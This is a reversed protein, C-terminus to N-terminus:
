FIKDVYNELYPQIIQYKEQLFDYANEIEQTNMLAASFKFKAYDWFDRKSFSKKHFGDYLVVGWPIIAGWVGGLVKGLVEGTVGGYTLATLTRGFKSKNRSNKTIFSVEKEM